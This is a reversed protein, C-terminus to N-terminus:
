QSLFNYEHKAASDTPYDTLYAEFLAKATDYDQLYEYCVAQNFLLERNEGEEALELGTELYVLAKDYEENHLLYVGYQNYIGPDNPHQSLYRQYLAEANDLDGLEEYVMALYYAAENNGQDYATQLSTKAQDYNELLYYVRGVLYPDADKSQIIRKLYSEARDSYGAKMFNLYMNCCMEYDEGCLSIAKEYDLAANNEDQLYVYCTGRMYYVNGRATKDEIRDVVRSYCEVADEYRGDKVYCTALYQLADVREATYSGSLEDVKLFAEEALEYQAQRYYAIGLGRYATASEETELVQTFFAQAEEYQGQSLELEGQAYEDTKESCGGLIVVAGGLLAAM